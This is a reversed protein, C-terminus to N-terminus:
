KKSLRKAFEDAVSQASVAAPIMESFAAAIKAPDNGAAALRDIALRISTADDRTWGALDNIRTDVHTRTASAESKVLNRTTGGEAKVLNSTGTFNDAIFQVIQNLRAQLDPDDKYMTDKPEFPTSGGGAFVPGNLAARIIPRPDMDYGAAPNWSNDAKYSVTFHLHPGDSGSGTYDDGAWPLTSRALKGLDQGRSVRQGVGPLNNPATNMHAYGDYRGDEDAQVVVFGGIVGSRGVRVVKGPRLAPVGSLWTRGGIDQGIHYGLTYPNKEGPMPRWGYDRTWRTPTWFDEYAGM